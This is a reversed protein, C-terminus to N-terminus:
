DLINRFEELATANGIVTVMDGMLLHTDGHPIFIENDRRIVILSGSEPFPIRKVLKRDVKKNRVPIEEVTYAGFSDTLAHTITPRMIESELRSAVIEYANVVQMESLEKHEEFLQPKTTVTILKSHGLENNLIEAIKLNKTDSQTIVVVTDVPRIKLARYTEAKLDNVHICEIGIAQLEDWQERQSEIVLYSIRHLDLRKALELGAQGGGVIYISYYHDVESSLFKYLLPSLVSTLIAAVVIGANVAPSILELSLGIQATAITLGMRSTLLLGSSLSRKWGFLKLMIASPILQTIYFAGLLSFIFGASSGFEKLSNMDLKVGVMIFFIPIFFGYAMGDLKFVIASRDKVFFISLLTGAFFAGLVPETNIASAIVVFLLLVAISGRIRIQSAAHELKYLIKQFIQVRVLVTGVKYAIFFVVFIILFLLLEFEFGKHRYIGSYVAILLITMITAIAGELLIIQGFKRQIEGDNKIIPVIISLAVSPLLIILFIKDIGPFLPLTYVLLASLVLSGFYILFAVLFTNTLLYRAKLRGRPFSSIIKRIDLALNNLFILFLFGTYSLFNLSAEDGSVLNLVFPGIVVGMIIEVIVSPLKSIELWSLTMPVLWAVVIIIFLSLYDEVLSSHYSSVVKKGLQSIHM